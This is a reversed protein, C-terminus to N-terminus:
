FLSSQIQAVVVDMRIEGPDFDEHISEVIGEAAGCQTCLLFATGGMSVEEKNMIEILVHTVSTRSSCWACAYDTPMLERVVIKFKEFTDNM